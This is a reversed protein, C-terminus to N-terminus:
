VKEVNYILFSSHSLILANLIEGDDSTPEHSQHERRFSDVYTRSCRNEVKKDIKKFDGFNKVVM